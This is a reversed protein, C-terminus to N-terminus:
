KTKNLKDESKKISRKLKFKQDDLFKLFEVEFEDEKSYEDRLEEIEKIREIISYNESIAYGSKTISVGRTEIFHNQWVALREKTTYPKQSITAVPLGFDKHLRKSQQISLGLFTSIDYWTTLPTEQFTFKKSFLSLLYLCIQVFEAKPIEKNYPVTVIEPNMVAFDLVKLSGSKDLEKIWQPITKEEYM